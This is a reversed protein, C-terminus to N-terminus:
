ALVANRWAELIASCEAAPAGQARLVAALSTAVDRVHPQGRLIGLLTGRHACAEIRREVAAAAERNGRESGPLIIRCDDAAGYGQLRGLAGDMAVRLHGEAARMGAENLSQSATSWAAAGALAHMRIRWLSPLTGSGVEEADETVEAVGAVEEEEEEREDREEREAPRKRRRRKDGAYEARRPAANSVGLLKSIDRLGEEEGEGEEEQEESEEDESRKRKRKCARVGAGLAEEAAVVAEEGRGRGLLAEVWAASFARIRAVAAANRGLQSRSLEGARRPGGARGAEALDRIAAWGGDLDGHLGLTAGGVAGSASGVAGGVIDLRASIVEQTKRGVSKREADIALRYLRLSRGRLDDAPGTRGNAAADAAMGELGQVLCDLFFRPQARQEQLLLPLARAVAPWNRRLLAGEFHDVVRRRASRITDGSIIDM